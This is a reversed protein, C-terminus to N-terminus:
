VKFVLFIWESRFLRFVRVLSVLELLIFSGFTPDSAM